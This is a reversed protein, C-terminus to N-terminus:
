CVCLCVCSMSSMHFDCDMQPFPSITNFLCLLGSQVVQGWVSICSQSQFFFIVSPLARALSFRTIASSSFMHELYMRYISQTSKHSIDTNLVAAVSFALIFTCTKPTKKLGMLRRCADLPMVSFPKEKIVNYTKFDLTQNLIFSIQM